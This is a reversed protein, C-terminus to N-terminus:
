DEDRRKKVSESFRELRRKNLHVEMNDVNKAKLIREDPEKEDDGM